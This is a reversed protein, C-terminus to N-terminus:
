KPSGQAIARVAASPILILRGLRRHPIEGAAVARELTGRDVGLMRAAAALSLPPEVSAPTHDM